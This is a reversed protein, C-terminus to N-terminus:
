TAITVGIAGPKTLPGAGGLIANGDTDVTVGTGSFTVDLVVDVGTARDIAAIVDNRYVINKWPWVDPDLYETVAAQVNAIVTADLEAPLKLVEVDVNLTTVTADVVQIVLGAHAAVRVSAQIATKTAASLLAGNEGAVVIAVYGRAYVPVGGGTIATVDLVKVRSVAPLAAVFAEIDVARVLTSTLRSLTPIARDLFADGDEATRGPTDYSVLQASSIWPISDIVDLYTNAPQGNASIGPITASASAFAVNQGPAAIADNTTVFLVPENNDGLNMGVTTGAPITHGVSDSLNFKLAIVPPSGQDRELGFLRLVVETLGNPLRNIGYVLESTIATIAELLVVETNGALPVWDPFKTAVSALADEMLQREDLDLLELDLYGAVDPTPM